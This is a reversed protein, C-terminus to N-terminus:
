FAGAIGLGLLVGVWLPRGDDRLLRIYMATAFVACLSGFLSGYFSGLYAGTIWYTGFLFM